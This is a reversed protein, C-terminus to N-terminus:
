YTINKNYIGYVYHILFVILCMIVLQNLYDFWRKKGIKNEKIFKKELEKLAPLIEKQPISLFESYQILYNQLINNPIKLKLLPTDELDSLVSETIGLKSATLAISINKDERTEKIIEQLRHM